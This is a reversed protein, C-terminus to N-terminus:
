NNQKKLSASLLDNKERESQLLREYLEIVKELPNNQYFISDTITGENHISQVTGEELEKILTVPFNLEKAIQELMDDDILDKSEIRSYEQQTMDLAAAMEKQTKLRFGRLRAVNNGLHGM